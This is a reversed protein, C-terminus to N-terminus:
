LADRGSVFAVLRPLDIGTGVMGDGVAM